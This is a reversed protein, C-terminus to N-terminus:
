SRATDDAPVLWHQTGFGFAYQPSSLEAALRLAAQRGIEGEFVSSFVATIANEQCFRRLQRPSGAIAAKIVYVGQWGRAHCDALQQVTAVSEDLALPTQYQTALQQLKGLCDPPLLQECFEIRGSARDCAELWVRATTVDLGGNADLRLKAASPLAALLAQFTQLEECPAAIGIKWKFSRAGASWGSEWAGLAASGTPLLHCFQWPAFDPGSPLGTELVALASELAFQCAPFADPIAFIRDRAITNGWSQCLELAAALTESGFTPLPAIEGWGIHGDDTELRVIAGQREKWTGHRTHLPQRFARRYPRVQLAFNAM